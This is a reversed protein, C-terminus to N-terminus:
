PKPNSTETGLSALKDELEKKIHRYRIGATRAFIEQATFDAIRKDVAKIAKEIEIKQSM